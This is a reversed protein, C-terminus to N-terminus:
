CWEPGAAAIADLAAELSPRSCAFSMRVRTRSREGFPTGDALDVRATRLLAGHVDGTEALTGRATLWAM